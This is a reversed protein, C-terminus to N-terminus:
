IIELENEALTVYRKDAVEESIADAPIAKLKDIEYDDVLSYGDIKEVYKSNMMDYVTKLITDNAPNEITGTYGAGAYLNVDTIFGSTDPGTSGIIDWTEDATWYFEDYSDDIKPGVLYVDGQQNGEAPLDSFSPVKGKIRFIDGIKSVATSVMKKCLAYVVVDM